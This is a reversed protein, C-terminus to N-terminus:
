NLECLEQVNESHGIFTYKNNGVSCTTLYFKIGDEINSNSTYMKFEQNDEILDLRSILDEISIEYENLGTQLNKEKGDLKFSLNLINTYVSESELSYIEEYYNIIQNKQVNNESSGCGCLFICTVFILFMKKM